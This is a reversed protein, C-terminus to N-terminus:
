NSKRLYESDSHGLYESIVLRVKKLARVMQSEITSVSIELIEAVEGYKLHDNKILRFIMQQAKPMKDVTAQILKDLETDILTSEPSVNTVFIEPSIQTYTVPKKSDRLASLSQNRIAKYLYAEINKIRTLEKRKTWLKTFVDSVVEESLFKDSTIQYSFTYLRTCYQNFFLGFSEQNSRLGIDAILRELNNASM